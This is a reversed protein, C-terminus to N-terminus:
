WASPFLIFLVFVTIFDCFKQRIWRNTFFHRNGSNSSYNACKCMNVSNKVGDSCESREAGLKLNHEVGHFYKKRSDTECLTVTRDNSLKSQFQLDRHKRHSRERSNRDSETIGCTCTRSDRDFHTISHELMVSDEM